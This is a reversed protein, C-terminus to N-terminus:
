LSIIWFYVYRKSFFKQNIIVKDIKLIDFARFFQDFWKDPCRM